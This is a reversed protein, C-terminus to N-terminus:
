APTAVPGPIRDLVRGEHGPQGACGQQM